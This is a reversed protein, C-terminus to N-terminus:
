TVVAEKWMRELKNIMRGNSALGRYESSSVADNCLYIFLYFFLICSNKYSKYNDSIYSNLNKTKQTTAGHLKRTRLSM